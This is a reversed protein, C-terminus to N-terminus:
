LVETESSQYVIEGGLITVMVKTNLIERPPVRLLNQNLVVIDAWKGAELSGKMRDTFEAYAAGLTYAQIAEEISIRQQPFWGRPPSLTSDSRTVAAYLGVFPNVPVVPWDTGFALTVGDTMLSNWAYATRSRLTGVRLEAWPMGTLCHTPQMSAVVGLESFRKVDSPTLIQAHEIRHRSDRTGNIAAALEFADLAMRNGRDGIAHIGVQFGERDARLVRLNLENQTMRPLGMTETDDAYPRLLVATRSGLSGDIFEKLLGARLMPGKYKSRFDKAKKLEDELPFWMTIRCTLYGEEELKAYVSYASSDSHDQISTIGYTKLGDLMGVIAETIETEEPEPIYQTVLDMATEELRGTPDGTRPDRVIRGGPPDPTERTIGAIQLAKSNAVAVHGCIRKLFVPAERIERDLHEKTPWQDREFLTQDWGRGVTWAGPSTRMIRRYQATVARRIEDISLMGTLDLERKAIAGNGFHIHADNFGPCVFLGKLDITKTHPGCFRSIEDNSGVALIRDGKIAVAEVYKRVPGVTYVFGNTLALTAVPIPKSCSFLLALVLFLGPMRILKYYCKKM